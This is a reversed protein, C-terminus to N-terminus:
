LMMNFTYLGIKTFVYLLQITLGRIVDNGRCHVFALLINCFEKCFFQTSWWVKSRLLKGHNRTFVKPFFICSCFYAYCSCVKDNAVYTSNEYCLIFAICPKAARHRLGM